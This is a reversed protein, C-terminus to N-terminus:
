IAVAHRHSETTCAKKQIQQPKNEKTEEEVEQANAEMSTKKGM